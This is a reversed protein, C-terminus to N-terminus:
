SASAVQVASYQGSQPHPGTSLFQPKREPSLTPQVIGTTPAVGWYAQFDTHGGISDKKNFDRITAQLVGCRVEPRADALDPDPAAADPRTAADAAADTDAGAADVADSDGDGDDTGGTSPGCAALVTIWGVTLVWASVLRTKGLVSRTAIVFRSGPDM